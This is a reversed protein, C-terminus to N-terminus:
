AFAFLIGNDELEIIKYNGMPVRPKREGYPSIQNKKLGITYNSTFGRIWNFEGILECPIFVLWTYTDAAIPLDYKDFTLMVPVDGKFVKVTPKKAGSCNEIQRVNFEAEPIKKLTPM